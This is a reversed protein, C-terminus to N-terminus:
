SGKAEKDGQSNEAVLLWFGFIQPYIICDEGSVGGKVVPWVTPDCCANTRDALM